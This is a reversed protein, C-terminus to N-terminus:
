PTEVVSALRALRRQPTSLPYDQLREPPVWVADAYNSVSLSGAGYAVDLCTMTIRFRTVSHRIKAIEGHVDGTIGLMALLRHATSEATESPEIADHPFEWLRAWRGGEPRQVLLVRGPKRVIVAVEEVAVIKPQRVRLPIQDQRHQRCAQCHERLPCGSCKPQSPTCILAGLEMLAQNFDGVSKKPLLTEALQWLHARVASTQPNKDIGFLRCLVRQSNAELIPLRRDYAQSLVAAVTYRGFGPLAGVFEPDDPITRHKHEVLRRAAACLARARRYYGLGEWLRLVEQEDAQALKRLTPFRRLFRHFYPIVTAVQTQQLMVESIWIRYPDRTNRWPLDRAHRRFWARLRKRISQRECTSISSHDSVYRGHLLV